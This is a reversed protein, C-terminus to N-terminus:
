PLRKLTEFIRQQRLNRMTDEKQIKALALRRNKNEQKQKVKPKENFKWNKENQKIFSTCERLLEWSKEKREARELLEQRDREM